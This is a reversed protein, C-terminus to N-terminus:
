EYIEKGFSLDMQIISNKDHSWDNGFFWIEWEDKDYMFDDEEHTVIKCIQEENHFSCWYYGSKNPIKNTFKM